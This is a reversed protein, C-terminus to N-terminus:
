GTSSSSRGSVTSLMVTFSPLGYAVKVTVPTAPCSTFSDSDFPVAVIAAAGLDPHRAALERAVMQPDFIDLVGPNIQALPSIAQLTNLIAVGEEARQARNLPSVYEVDIMSGHAKLQDPMPPLQGATALIDLEREIMPGLLESQQRGMSPALLAGKEQPTGPIPCDPRDWSAFSDCYRDLNFGFAWTPEGQPSLLIVPAARGQDQAIADLTKELPKAMMVMGPGGGYARDDVTRRADETFDRPNWTKLVALKQEFARGTVGWHTLASFMEPFITVVDFRM